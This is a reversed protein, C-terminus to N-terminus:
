LHPIGFTFSDRKLLVMEDIDDVSLSSSGLFALALDSLRREIFKWFHEVNAACM